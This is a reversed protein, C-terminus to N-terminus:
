MKPNLRYLSLASSTKQCCALCHGRFAITTDSQDYLTFIYGIKEAQLIRDDDTSPILGCMCMNITICRSM